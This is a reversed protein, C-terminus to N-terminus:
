NLSKITMSKKDSLYYIIGNNEDVAYIPDRDGIVVKNTTEGSLKIVKAIGFGKVNAEKFKTKIFVSKEANTSSSKSNLSRMNPTYQIYTSNGAQSNVNYSNMTATMAVATLAAAKAMDGVSPGPAKYYTEFKIEGTTKDVGVVNQSGNLVITNEILEFGMFSDGGQFKIKETLTESKKNAIDIKEISKKAVVYFTNGDNILLGGTGKIKIPKKWKLAGTEKDILNIGRETHIVIGEDIVYLNFIKSVKNAKVDWKPKGTKSDIAILMNRFPFYLTNTTKDLKMIAWGKRPNSPQDGKGSKPTKLKYPKWYFEWIPEGTLLNYEGLQGVAIHIIATKEGTYTIPQTGVFNHKFAIGKPLCIKDNLKYQMKNTEIDWVDVGHLRTNLWLQNTGHIVKAGFIDGGNVYEGNFVNLIVIGVRFGGTAIILESGALIEIRHPDLKKLKDNKWLEVGNKDIGYLADDTGVIAIGPATMKIFNIDRPFDITKEAMSFISILMVLVILSLKKLNKM